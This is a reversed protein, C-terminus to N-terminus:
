RSRFLRTAVSVASVALAVLVAILWAPTSGGSKAPVTESQQPSDEPSLANSDDARPEASENVERLTTTSLGDGELGAGTTETVSVDDLGLPTITLAEIPAAVTLFDPALVLSSVSLRREFYEGKPAPDGDTTSGDLGFVELGGGRSRLVGSEIPALGWGWGVDTPAVVQTGDTSIVEIRKTVITEREIVWSANDFWRIWKAAGEATAITTGPLALTVISETGAVPIGDVVAFTVAHTAGTDYAAPLGSLTVLMALQSGDPSVDGDIVSAGEPLRVEGAAIPEFDHSSLTRVPEGVSTPLLLVTGSPHLVASSVGEYSRSQNAVGSSSSNSTAVTVFGASPGYGASTVIRRGDDLCAVSDSGIALYSSEILREEVVSLDRLDVISITSVESQSIVAALTTGPCHAALGSRGINGRALARGRGDLVAIDSTGVTGSLVAAPPGVGTPSSDLAIRQAFDAATPTPMCDLATLEAGTRRAYVVIAQDFRGFDTGCSAQWDSGTVVEVANVDGKVVGDVDFRWVPGFDIGENDVLEGTFVVDALGVADVPDVATCSCARALSSGGLVVAGFLVTMVAVFRLPSSRAIVRKQREGRRIPEM